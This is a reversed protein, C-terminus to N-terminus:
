GPYFPDVLQGSITSYWVVDNTLSASWLGGNQYSEAVYVQRGANAAAIGTLPGSLNTSGYPAWTVGDISVDYVFPKDRNMAAVVVREPTKWDVDAIQPADPGVLLRPNVVKSEEGAGSVVAVYLAGDVIAAVRSGDRSLRLETIRGKVALENLDVGFQRLDGSRTRTVGVGVKDDIVTWLEPNSGARWTPRTMRSARLSVPTLSELTGILLQPAGASATVLGFLEGDASRSGSLISLSGDGVPGEIPEAGAARVLRGNAVALVPLDPKVQAPALFADADDINWDKRAPLLQASNLRIRVPKRWVAALTRVIQAGARQREEETLERDLSLDVSLAGDETAVVNTKLAAGDLLSAVGDKAAASPGALLMDIARGPWNAPPTRPIWRPDVVLTGRTDDVFTVAARLYSTSFQRQDILLGDPLQSIRWQGNVRTLNMLPTITDRNSTFAGDPGLVGVKQARLLVQVSEDSESVAGVAYLTDYDPAVVTVHADSNWADDADDTLYTRAAAHGNAPTDALEIFERVISLPDAGEKPVPLAEDELEGLSSGIPVVQSSKPIAACGGVSVVLAVSVAAVLAVAATRAQTSM